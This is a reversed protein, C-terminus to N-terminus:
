ELWIQRFYRWATPHLKLNKVRKNTIVAKKSHAIPVWPVDNHFIEQAKKYLEIRKERDTISRAQDLIEQM